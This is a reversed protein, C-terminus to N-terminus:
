KELYLAIEGLLEQLAAESELPERDVYTATRIRLTRWGTVVSAHINEWTYVKDDDETSETICQELDKKLKYRLASFADRWTQGDIKDCLADNLHADFERMINLVASSDM